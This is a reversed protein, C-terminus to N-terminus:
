FNEMEYVVDSKKKLFYVMLIGSYNDVMAMVYKCGKRDSSEIPGALDTRVLELPTRLATPIPPTRPTM